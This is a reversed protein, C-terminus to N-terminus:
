FVYEGVYFLEFSIPLFFIGWCSSYTLHGGFLNIELGKELCWYLWSVTWLKYPLGIGMKSITREDFSPCEATWHPQCFELFGWSASSLRLFEVNLPFESSYTTVAQGGVPDQRGGPARGTHPCRESTLHSPPRSSSIVLCIGDKCELWKSKMVWVKGERWVYVDM